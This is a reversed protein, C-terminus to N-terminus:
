QYKRLKFKQVIKTIKAQIKHMASTLGSYKVSLQRHVKSLDVLDANGDVNVYAGNSDSFYIRINKEDRFRSMIYRAKRKLEQEVLADREFAYFPRIINVIDTLCPKEMRKLNEAVITKVAKNNNAKSKGSKKTNKIM